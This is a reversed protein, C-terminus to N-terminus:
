ILHNLSLAYICRYLANLTYFVFTAILIYIYINLKSMFVSIYIYISGSDADLAQCLCQSLCGSM